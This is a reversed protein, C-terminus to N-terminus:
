EDFLKFVVEEKGASVAVKRNAISSSLRHHYRRARASVGFILTIARKM